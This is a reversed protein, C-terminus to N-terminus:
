DVSSTANLCNDEMPPEEMAPVEEARRSSAEFALYRSVRKAGCWTRESESERQRERAREIVCM